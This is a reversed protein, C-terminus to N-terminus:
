ARSPFYKDRFHLVPREILTSIAAGGGIAVTCLIIAGIIWGSNTTTQWPLRNILFKGTLGMLTVHWLYICYSHTGVWAVASALPNVLSAVKGFDSSRISYTGLLIGAAALTARPIIRHSPVGYITFNPWFLLLFVGVAILLYRWKGLLTFFEPQYEMLARLGVGFLLADINLHTAAMTRSTDTIYPDGAAALGSRLLTFIVPSALCIPLLWQPRRLAVLGAIAFPLLIYFHEEVALSWTHGAMTPGIYNQVFLLSPWYNSFTTAITDLVGSGSAVAKAIPMLLLYCLFLYYPPYIKFGRRLLFRPVSVCGQKKLESILLGGILFGSLLFFLPVGFIGKKDWFGAFDHIFGAEPPVIRFHAGLVM